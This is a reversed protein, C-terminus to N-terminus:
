SYIWATSLELVPHHFHTHVTHLLWVLLSSHTDTHTNLLSNSFSHKKDTNKGRFLSWCACLLSNYFYAAFNNRISREKKRFLIKSFFTRRRSKNKGLIISSQCNNKKFTTLKHSLKYNCCKPPARWVIREIQKNNQRARCKVPFVCSSKRQSCRRVLHQTITSRTRKWKCNGRM